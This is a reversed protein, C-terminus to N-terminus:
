WLIRHHQYLYGAHANIETLFKATNKRIDNATVETKNSIWDNMDRCVREAILEANAASEHVSLCSAYISAYLKREDYKESRGNRKVVHKM